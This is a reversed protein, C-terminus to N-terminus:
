KDSEMRRAGELFRAKAPSFDGLVNLIVAFDGLSGSDGNRAVASLYVSLPVCM